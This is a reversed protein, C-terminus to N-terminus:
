DQIESPVPLDLQHEKLLVHRRATKLDEEVMERCMDQATIDPLWNLQEKAKTPDGLLTEVEAPRFYRPDIRLVVDGVTLAPARDSTIAEVIAVEDLGQGEFRLKIGLAEASWYIFERVSFQQGTAIVYDEPKDQQLMMWQMRVYDKAHGWDRLADINGMYLCKDLGQAINSLGRTIKRTVFTEGRRPSEHNFLIGNCAYLGYAERYNVTIWYAYLKAVAYPSRPHFPTTERQPTEQVLGYLESTSAQYFRTRDSLGLFRIAELLRLTGIADVDATYEPSEFSVAVHSQAGLNYVEDPEVEAMIRTLNSTDALDGYHLKLRSGEIHPDQFIHDIRSTNFNSARRKIGHVEYGKDLLFEALYSGDQGTIGTILAKKM